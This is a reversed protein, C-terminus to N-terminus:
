SHKPVPLDLLTTLCHQIERNMGDNAKGFLVGHEDLKRGFDEIAQAVDSDVQEASSSAAPKPSAAAQKGYSSPVYSEASSYIVDATRSVPARPGSPSGRKASAAPTRRAPEATKSESNRNQFAQLAEPSGYLTKGQFTIQSSSANLPACRTDGRSNVTCVTANDCAVDPCQSLDTEGQRGGVLLVLQESPLERIRDMFNALHEYGKGALVRLCNNRLTQVDDRYQCLYTCFALTGVRALKLSLEFNAERIRGGLLLLLKYDEIPVYDDGKRTYGSDTIQVSKAFRGPIFWFNPPAEMFKILKCYMPQRYAYRPDQRIFEKIEDVTAEEAVNDFNGVVIELRSGDARKGVVPKRGVNLRDNSASSM